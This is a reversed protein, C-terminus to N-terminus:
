SASVVLPLPQERDQVADITHVLTQMPIDGEASIEIRALEGTTRLQEARAQLAAFDGAPVSPGAIEDHPRDKGGGLEIAFGDSQIRVRLALEPKPESPDSRADARFGPPSVSIAAMSAVEMSLLLAPILLFMINMVPLMNADAAEDDSPRRFPRKM